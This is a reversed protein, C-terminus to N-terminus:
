IQCSRCGAVDVAGSGVEVEVEEQTAGITKESYALFTAATRGLLNRYVIQCSTLRWSTWSLIAKIVLNTMHHVLRVTDDENSKKV